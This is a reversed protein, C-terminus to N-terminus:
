EQRGSVINIFTELSTEPGISFRKLTMPRDGTRVYGAEITFGLRYGAAGASKVAAPSFEGFPYAIAAPRPIGLMRCFDNFRYFDQEIERAEMVCLAPKGEVFRHGDYTHCGIEVMGPGTMSGIQLATLHPRSKEPVKGMLFVAARFGYKMLYPYCYLYNSEYGDDFTIVVSRRPLRGTGRVYDELDSLSATYFGNRHLYDMQDIFSRLSLVSNNAGDDDSIFPLVEHYTLVAVKEPWLPGSGGPAEALAAKVPLVAGSLIFIIFAAALVAAKYWFLTRAGKKETM